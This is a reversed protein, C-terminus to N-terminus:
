APTEKKIFNCAKLQLKILVSDGAYTNKQSNQLIKLLVQKVFVKLGRRKELSKWSCLKM